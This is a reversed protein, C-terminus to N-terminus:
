PIDRGRNGGMGTYSDGSETRGQMYEHIDDVASDRLDILSLDDVTKQTQMEIDKVESETRRILVEKQKKSEEIEMKLEENERYIEDLTREYDPFILRDYVFSIAFYIILLVGVLVAITAIRSKQM